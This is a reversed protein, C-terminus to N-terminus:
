NKKSDIGSLEIAVQGLQEIVQPTHILLGKVEQEDEFLRKGEDDVLCYALMTTAFEFSNEEEVGKGYRKQLDVLDRSSLARINVYADEGWAPMPHRITKLTKPKLLEAKNLGPM